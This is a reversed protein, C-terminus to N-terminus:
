KKESAAQHLQQFIGMRDAVQWHGSIRDGKFYYVTMGSMKMQRGTAPFGPIDGLHTGTWLWTMVVANEEAILEQIEFRQDPFPMRSIRVREQFGARDLTRHEWADGPDHHITYTPTLYLDSRDIQGENWVERIFESLIEKKQIATSM